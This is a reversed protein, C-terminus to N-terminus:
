GAVGHSLDMSLTTRRRREHARDGKSEFAVGIIPVRVEDDYVGCTSTSGASRGSMRTAGRQSSAFGNKLSVSEGLSSIALTKTSAM